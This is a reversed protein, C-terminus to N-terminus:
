HNYKKKELFNSILGLRKETHKKKKSRVTIWKMIIKAHLNLTGGKWM